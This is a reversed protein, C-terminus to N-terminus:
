IGVLVTHGHRVLERVGNPPLAVRYENDKIEKAIGIIMLPIDKKPYHDEGM